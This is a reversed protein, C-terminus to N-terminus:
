FTYLTGVGHNYKVRGEISHLGSGWENSCNLKCIIIKIALQVGTFKWKLSFMLM